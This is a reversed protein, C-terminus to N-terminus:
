LFHLHFLPQFGWLCAWICWGPFKLHLSLLPESLFGTLNKVLKQMLRARPLFLSEEKVWYIAMQQASLV